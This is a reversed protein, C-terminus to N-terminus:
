PADLIERLKGLLAEATFPKGLLQFDLAELGHSEGPYGSMYLAKLDPQTVKLAQVLAWGNMEPMVVDTLILDIPQSMYLGLAAQGSAASLVRYGAQTLMRQVLRRVSADDEVLLIRECGRLADSVGHHSLAAPLALRQNIYPFRLTFTAGEGPASDVTIDGGAQEVIEHIISLGLGTGRGDVKTTFFSEFIREKVEASMGQGTDRVKLVAYGFHNHNEPGMHITQIFLKGGKPMADRANVILNMLIQEIQSKDAMIFNLSESLNVILEIDEGILRQMMKELRMIVDNLSLKITVMLNQKRSFTLLQRTLAAARQGADSIQEIDAKLPDGERLGFTAFEAYSNIVTLLNNFDHAIGSALRGLAEMKQSQLLQAELSAQQRASCAEALRASLVPALQEAVGEVLARDRDDYDDPKDHVSFFAVLAGARGLPAMLTRRQPTAGRQLPMIPANFIRPASMAGGLDRWPPDLEELKFTKEFDIAAGDGQVAACRLHGDTGRAVFFGGRSHTAEIMRRLILAPAAEHPATLLIQAVDNILQITAQRRLLEAEAIKLLTINKASVWVHRLRGNEVTGKMSM